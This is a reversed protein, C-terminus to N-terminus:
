KKTPLKAASGTSGASGNKAPTATTKEPHAVKIGTNSRMHSSTASNTDTPCGGMVTNCQFAFATPSSLVFALLIIKQKM